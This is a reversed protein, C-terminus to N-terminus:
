RIRKSINIDWQTHWGSELQKLLKVNDETPLTIIPVNLKTDTIEFETIGVASSIVCKKSWTLNLSIEFNILPKELTRWFNSLYKLPVATKDYKTNGAAPSKGTIKIKYKLSESQTVNDNPDYRCYQWLIGSTKLYNDSYDILNYMAIVFLM